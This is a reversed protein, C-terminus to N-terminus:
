LMRLILYVLAILYAAWVVLGVAWVLLLKIWVHLPRGTDAPKTDPNAYDLKEDPQSEEASM